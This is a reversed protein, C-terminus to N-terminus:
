LDAAPEVDRRGPMRKAQRLVVRGGVDQRAAAQDEPDAAPIVRALDLAEAVRHEVALGIAIQELLLDLDDELREAPRGERVAALVVRDWRRDRIAPVLALLEREPRPRHVQRDLDPLGDDAAARSSELEHHLVPDLADDRGGGLLEDVPPEVVILARRAGVAALEREPLIQDESEPHADVVRLRERDLL